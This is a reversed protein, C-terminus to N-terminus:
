CFILPYTAITQRSGREIRRRACFPRVVASPRLPEVDWASHADDQAVRMRRVPCPSALDRWSPFYGGGGRAALRRRHPTMQAHRRHLQPSQRPPRSRCARSCRYCRPRHGQGPRPIAELTQRSARRLAATEEAPKSRGFTPRRAYLKLSSARGTELTTMRQSGVDADEHPKTPERIRMADRRSGYTSLTRHRAHPSRGADQSRISDGRLRSM